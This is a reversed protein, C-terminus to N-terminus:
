SIKDRDKNRKNTIVIRVSESALPNIEKWLYGEM